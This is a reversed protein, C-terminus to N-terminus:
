RPGVMLTDLQVVLKYERGDPGSFTIIRNVKDRLNAQGHVTGEWTPSHSDEFDAMYVDAGSNLANIVMKRDVPGTIEVRRERLDPPIPEVKWDSTRIESTEDLFDLLSGTRLSEHVLIRKQLLVDRRPSFERVLYGVFALADPTLIEEFGELTPSPIM